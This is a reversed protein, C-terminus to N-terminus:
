ERILKAAKERAAEYDINEILYPKVPLKADPDGPTLSFSLCLLEEDREPERCFGMAEFFRLAESNEPHVYSFVRKRNGLEMMERMLEWLARGVRRRKFEEKVYLELETSFLDQPAKRWERLHCFGAPTSDIECLIWGLGYTYRDIRAIYSQLEPATQEPAHCTGTYPSYIKLMSPGDWENVRRVAAKHM